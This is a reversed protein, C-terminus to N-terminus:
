PRSTPAPGSPLHTRRLALPCTDCKLDHGAAELADLGGCSGRLCRPRAGLLGVAMILMLAGVVVVSLVILGIM